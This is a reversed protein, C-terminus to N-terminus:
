RRAIGDKPSGLVEGLAQILASVTAVGTAIEEEGSLLPVHLFVANRKGGGPERKDLEALSTYYLLGCVYSGVDDTARVDSINKSCKAPARKQPNEKQNKKKVQMEKLISQWIDVVADLDLSTELREASKKGWLKQTETKTLTRKDLDPYEHYGDRMASREVSFYTREIDVGIHLVIDPQVDQILQPSTQLLWHYASRLPDPHTVIDIGAPLSSPLRKAIEFSPNLIDRQAQSVTGFGTVFIRTNQDAM